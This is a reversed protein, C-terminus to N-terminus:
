LNGNKRQHLYEFNCIMKAVEPHLGHSAGIQQYDLGLALLREVTYHPLIVEAAAHVAGLDSAAISSYREPITNLADILVRAKEPLGVYTEGPSWCHMIEKIAVFEKWHKPLNKDVYVVGMSSSQDSKVMRAFLGDFPRPLSTEYYRIESIGNLPCDIAANWVEMLSMAAGIARGTRKFRLEHLHQSLAVYKM